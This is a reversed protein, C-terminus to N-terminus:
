GGHAVWTHMDPRGPPPCRPRYPSFRGVPQATSGWSCRWGPVAQTRLPSCTQQHGAMKGDPFSIRGCPPPAKEYWSTCNPSPPPRDTSDAEANSAPDSGLRDTRASQHSAGEPIPPD